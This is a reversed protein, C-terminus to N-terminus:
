LHCLSLRFFACQYLSFQSTLASDLLCIYIYIYVYIYIHIDIATGQVGYKNNVKINNVM